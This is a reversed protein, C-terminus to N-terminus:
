RLSKIQLFLDKLTEKYVFATLVSCPICLWYMPFTPYFFSIAALMVTLILIIIFNRWDLPLQYLRLGLISRMIFFTLFSLFTSLVAGKAGLAPILLSGATISAASCTILVYFHFITKRKLNIGVSTIDSLAYFMPVFLLPTFIVISEHYNKPLVFQILDKSAIAIQIALLFAGTVVNFIHRYFSKDNENRAFREFVFPIWFTSFSTQLINLASAVRSATAYIGIETFTSYIRLFTRDSSQFIWDFALTPVFPIGYALLQQMYRKDIQVRAAMVKKWLNLELFVALLMAVFQSVTFGIVVSIFTKSFFVISLITVVLNSLSLLVNVASYAIAKNQMRLVLLAYRNICGVILVFSLLDIIFAYENNSFFFISLSNRLIEIALVSTVIALATPVAANILLKTKDKAESENFFRVFSQDIGLLLVNLLLNYSITFITAKGIEAPEIFWTIVPISVLSIIANIWTGFSFKLFIKFPSAM